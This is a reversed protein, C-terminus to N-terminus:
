KMNINFQFKFSNLVCVFEPVFKFIPTTPNGLTPLLVNKLINVLSCAAPLFIM